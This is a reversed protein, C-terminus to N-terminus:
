SHFLKKKLNYQHYNNNFYNQININKSIRELHGSTVPGANDALNPACNSTFFSSKEVSCCLVNGCKFRLRGESGELKDIITTLMFYDMLILWEAM